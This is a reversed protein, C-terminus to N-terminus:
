LEATADAAPEARAVWRKRWFRPARAVKALKRHAERVTDRQAQKVWHL